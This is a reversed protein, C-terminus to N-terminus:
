MGASYHLASSVEEHLDVAQEVLSTGLIRKVEEVENEPCHQLILEWTSPLSEFVEDCDLSGSSM